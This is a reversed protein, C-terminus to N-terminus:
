KVKSNRLLTAIMGFAVGYLVTNGLITLAIVMWEKSVYNTFILFYVPCFKFTIREVFANANPSFPRIYELTLLVVAIATGVAAGTIVGKKSSM